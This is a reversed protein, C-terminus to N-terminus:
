YELWVDGNSGDGAVPANDSIHIYRRREDELAVFELATEGANVRPANYAKDVYSAPTDTLQLFTSAGGGGGGEELAKIRKLLIRLRGSLEALSTFGAGGAM